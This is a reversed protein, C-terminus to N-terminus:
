LHCNCCKLSIKQETYNRILLRSYNKDKNRQIYHAKKGKAAKLIELNEKEKTKGYNSYSINLTTHKENTGINKIKTKSLTRQAEQIQRKTDSM